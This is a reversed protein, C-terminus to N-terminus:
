QTYSQRLEVLGTCLLWIRETNKKTFKLNHNCIMVSKLFLNSSNEYELFYSKQLMKSQWKMLCPGRNIIEPTLFLRCYFFIMIIQCNFQANKTLTNVLIIGDASMINSSSLHSIQLSFIWVWIAGPGRRRWDEIDNPCDSSDWFPSWCATQHHPPNQLM